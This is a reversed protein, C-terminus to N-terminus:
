REMRKTHNDSKDKSLGLEVNIIEVTMGNFCISDGKKHSLLVQALKANCSIINNPIDSESEGLIRFHRLKEKMLIEIDCGVIVTEGDWNQFMETEEIIEATQYMDLLQQKEAPLSYMAQVRLQLFESNERIDNDRKYSEGMENLTSEIREDIENIRNELNHYGQASIYNKTRVVGM